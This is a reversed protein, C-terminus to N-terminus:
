YMIYMNKYHHEPTLIEVQNWRDNITNYKGKIYMQSKIDVERVGRGKKM